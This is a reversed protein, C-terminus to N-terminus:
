NNQHVQDTEIARTLMDFFSNITVRNFGAARTASTSESRRLGLDPNRKFLNGVLIRGAM